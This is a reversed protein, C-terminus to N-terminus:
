IRLNVIVQEPSLRHILCVSESSSTVPPIVASAFVDFGSWVYGNGILGAANAARMLANVDNTEGVSILNYASTGSM